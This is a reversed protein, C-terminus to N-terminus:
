LLKLRMILIELAARYDIVGRKVLRDIKSLQDYIKILKEKAESWKTLKQKIRNIVFFPLDINKTQHNLIYLAARIQKIFYNFIQGEDVGGNLAREINLLMQKKNGDFFNNFIAFFDPHLPFNTLLKIEKLTIKQNPQFLSIKILENIFRYSDNGFNDFLLKLAPLEINIQHKQMQKKLWPFAESFNKFPIFKQAISKKKLFDFFDKKEASFKKEKENFNFDSEVLILNNEKSKNLDSEQIFHSIKSFESSKFINRAVALKQPAFMSISGFFNKFSDANEKESLDFVDFGLLDPYKNQYHLKIEEIKENLRYQDSGYLFYIM